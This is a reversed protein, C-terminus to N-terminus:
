NELVRADAKALEKIEKESMVASRNAPSMECSQQQKLWFRMGTAGCAVFVFIGPRITGIPCTTM